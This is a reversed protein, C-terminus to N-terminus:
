FFLWKRKPSLMACVVTAGDERARRFVESFVKPDVTVGSWLWRVGDNHPQGESNLPELYEGVSTHEGDYAEMGRLLREVLDWQATRALMLFLISISNGFLPSLPVSVEADRISETAKVARTHLPSLHYMAIDVLDSWINYSAQQANETHQACNTSCGALLVALVSVTAPSVCGYWSLPPSLAGEKLRNDMALKLEKLLLEIRHQLATPVYLEQLSEFHMAEDANGVDYANDSSSHENSDVFYQVERSAYGERMAGYRTFDENSDHARNGNDRSLLQHGGDVGRDNKVDFQEQLIHHHTAYGGTYGGRSCELQRHNTQLWRALDILTLCVLREALSDVIQRICASDLDPVAVGANSFVGRNKHTNLATRLEMLWGHSRADVEIDLEGAASVCQSSAGSSTRADLSCLSALRRQLHLNRLLLARELPTWGSKERSEGVEASDSGHGGVPFAHNGLNDAHIFNPDQCGSGVHLITRAVAESSPSLGNLYSMILASNEAWIQEQELNEAQDDDKVFHGNEFNPVLPLTASVMSFLMNLIKAPYKLGPSEKDIVDSSSKYDAVTHRWSFASDRQYHKKSAEILRLADHANWLQQELRFAQRGYYILSIIDLSFHELIDRAQPMLTARVDAELEDLYGIWAETNLVVRNSKLNDYPKDLNDACSHTLFGACFATQLSLLLWPEKAEAACATLAILFKTIARLPMLLESTDTELNTTSKAPVFSMLLRRVVANQEKIPPLVSGLRDHEKVSDPRIRGGEAYMNIAHNAARDEEEERSEVSPLRMNRRLEDFFLNMKGAARWVPLLYHMLYHRTYCNYSNAYLLPTYWDPEGCESKEDIAAVNNHCRHPKPPCWGYELLKQLEERNTGVGCLDHHTPFSSLLHFNAASEPLCSMLYAGLISTLDQLLFLPYPPGRPEDGIIYSNLWLTMATTYDGNIVNIHFMGFVLEDSLVFGQITTLRQAKKNIHQLEEVLHSPLAEIHRPAGSYKATPESKSIGAPLPAATTSPVRNLDFFENVKQELARSRSLIDQCAEVWREVSRSKISLFKDQKFLLPQFAPIVKLPSLVGNWVSCRTRKM